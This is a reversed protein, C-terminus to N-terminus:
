RRQSYNNWSFVVRGLPVSHTQHLITEEGEYVIVSNFDVCDKFNKTREKVLSVAYAIAKDYTPFWEESAGYSIPSTGGDEFVIYGGPNQIYKGMIVENVGNKVNLETKELGIPM